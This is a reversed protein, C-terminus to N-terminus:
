AFALCAAGFIMAHIRLIPWYDRHLLRGLAGLDEPPLLVLAM